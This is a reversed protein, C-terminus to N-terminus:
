GEDKIVERTGGRENRGKEGQRVRGKVRTRGMGKLGRDKKEARRKFREGKESQRM